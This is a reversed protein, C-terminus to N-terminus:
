LSPSTGAKYANLIDTVDPGSGKNAAKIERANLSSYEPIGRHYFTVRDREKDIVAMLMLYTKEFVKQRIPFNSLRGAINAELRAATDSSIIAINSATAVSMSGTVLGSLTNGKSRALIQQYLGTTDKILTKRHEDVLDSCLILDKVLSIQGSRWAHYREKFSLDKSGISLIHTMADSAISNVLLRVAVPVDISNGNDGKLNVKLLKGVSLNVLERVEKVDDVKQSTRAVHNEYIDHAKHEQERRRYEEKTKNEFKEDAELSIAEMALNANRPDGPRPLRNKTFGLAEMSVAFSEMGVAVRGLTAAIPDRSPNLRELQKMVSVNGLTASMAWAQLYYGAFISLLSQTVEPTIDLYMCDADLLTIPEVRAPQTYAILSDTTRLSDLTRLADSLTSLGAMAALQQM